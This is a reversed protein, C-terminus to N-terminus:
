KKRLSELVERVPRETALLQLLMHLNTQTQHALEIIQSPSLRDFREKPINFHSVHEILQYLQLFAQGIQQQIQPFILEKNELTQIKDLTAEKKKPSLRRLLSEFQNSHSAEAAKPPSLPPPSTVHDLHVATAM